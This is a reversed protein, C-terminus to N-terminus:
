GCVKLPPPPEDWPSPDPMDWASPDLAPWPSPDPMDWGDAAARAVVSAALVARAAPTLHGARAVAAVQASLASPRM